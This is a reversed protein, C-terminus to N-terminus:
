KRYPELQLRVVGDHAVLEGAKAMRGAPAAATFLSQNRSGFLAKVMVDVSTMGVTDIAKRAAKYIKYTANAYLSNFAFSNVEKFLIKNNKQGNIKNKKLGSDIKKIKKIIIIVRIFM